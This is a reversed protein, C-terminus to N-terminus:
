FLPQVLAVVQEQKVLGSERYRSDFSDDSAGHVFFQGRPIVQPAIPTLPRRDHTRTKAIGMPEGNVLVLREQVTILDGPVGVVRKFFPQGHLGPYRDRPQGPTESRDRQNGQDGLDGLDGFDGKAGLDGQGRQAGRDEALRRADRLSWEGGAFAFVIFDGRIPIRADRRVWAVHYPLSPTWNFLLPLRPTPDLFLRLYALAWIILVPAVLYWRRQSIRLLERASHVHRQLFRPVYGQLHRQLHRQVQRQSPRYRLRRVLRVLLKMHRQRPHRLRQKLVAAHSTPEVKLDREYRENGGSNM